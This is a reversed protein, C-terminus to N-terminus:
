ELVMKQRATGFGLRVIRLKKMATDRERTLSPSLTSSSSAAASLTLLGASGLSERLPLRILHTTFSTDWGLTEIELLANSVLLTDGGWLGSSSPSTWGTFVELDLRVEGMARSELYRSELSRKAALHNYRITPPTSAVRVRTWWGPFSRRMRPDCSPWHAITWCWGHYSM